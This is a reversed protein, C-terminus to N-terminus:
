PQEAMAKLDALGAEFDGGVMRDFNFVLHVIKFMLTLPGTMAWTVTTSDGQPALTFDARSTSEFPKLFDLRVAVKAHPVSEVIELSGAGINKDGDWAYRAGKGAAPGSYRRQMDPDKKEFPSWGRWAQLDNILLFIKEPPAQITTARQVRFTDPRTSAYALLGLIAVVVIAAAIALIKLM